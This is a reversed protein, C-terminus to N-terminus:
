CQMSSLGCVKQCYAAQAKKGFNMGKLTHAWELSYLIDLLMKETVILCKDQAALEMIKEMKSPGDDAGINAIELSKSVSSKYILRM